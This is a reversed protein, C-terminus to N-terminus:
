NPSKSIRPLYVTFTTGMDLESEVSIIGGLDNVIGYVVSMGLGVGQGLEKTTFYPDFIKEQFDPDIGCGTDAVRMRVYSGPLLRPNPRADDSFEIGSLSIEISGPGEGMAQNANCCLNILIQLVQSPSASIVMAETAIEGQIKIRTPFSARLLEIGEKVLRAADVSKREQKNPRSFSLIQNVIDKARRCSKMILKLYHHKHIEDTTNQVLETYGMVMSLINNFDHAIGGALTGVAEMKQSQWLQSELEKERTVDIATGFIAPKERELVASGLVLLTIPRGDKRFGRVYCKLRKAKGNLRLDINKKVMERDETHILDLFNMTDVLEEFAYGTIQCFRKNVFKFFFDQIIYVGVLSEEVVLHYKEESYRFDGTRRGCVAVESSIKSDQHSGKKVEPM